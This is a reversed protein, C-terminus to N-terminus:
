YYSIKRTNTEIYNGNYYKIRSVWNSHKDYKYYFNDKTMKLNKDYKICETLNNQADYTSIYKAITDNNKTTKIINEIKLGNKYNTSKSYKFYDDEDIFM